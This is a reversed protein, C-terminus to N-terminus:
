ACTVPTPSIFGLPRRLKELGGPGRIRQFCVLACSMSINKITKQIGFQEGLVTSLFFWIFMQIISSCLFMYSFYLVRIPFMYPKKRFMNMTQQSIISFTTKRTKKTFWWLSTRSVIVTRFRWGTLGKKIKNNSSFEYGPLFHWIFFQARFFHAFFKGLSNKIIKRYKQFLFLLLCLSCM